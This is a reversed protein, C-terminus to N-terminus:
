EIDPSASNQGFTTVPWFDSREDSMAGGPEFRAGGGAVGCNKTVKLM